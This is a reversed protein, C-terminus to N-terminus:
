ILVGQEKQKDNQLKKKKDYRKHSLSWSLKKKKKATIYKIKGIGTSVLVVIHKLFQQLQHILSSDNIKAPSQFTSLGPQDPAWSEFQPILLLIKAFLSFRTTVPRQEDSWTRKFWNNKRVCEHFTRGTWQTFTIFIVIVNSSAIASQQQPTTVTCSLYLINKLVHLNYVCIIVYIFTTFSKISIDQM